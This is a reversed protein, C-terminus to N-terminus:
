ALLLIVLDMGKEILEKVEVYTLKEIRREM